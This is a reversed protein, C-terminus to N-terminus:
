KNQQCIKEKIIKEILYPNKVGQFKVEVSPSGATNIKITGLDLIREIFGQTVALDQIKNYEVSILNRSVFSFEYKVGEQTLYYTHSRRVLEFILIIILGLFLYSWVFLLSLIIIVVGILYFLSFALPSPKIEKIIEQNNQPLM